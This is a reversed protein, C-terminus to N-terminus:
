FSYFMRAIELFVIAELPIMLRFNLFFEAVVDVGSTPAPLYDPPSQAHLRNGGWCTLTFLLLMGFNLLTIYNISRDLQSQKWKHAEQNIQMKSNEGTFVVMAEVRTSNVMFSGKPLFNKSNIDKHVGSGLVSVTGRFHEMDASPAEAYVKLGRLKTLKIQTTREEVKFAQDVERVAM